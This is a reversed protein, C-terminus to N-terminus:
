RSQIGFAYGYTGLYLSIGGWPWKKKKALRHAARGLEMFRTLVILEAWQMAFQLEDSDIPEEAFVRQLDEFGLIPFVTGTETRSNANFNELWDLDFILTGYDRPYSFAEAYWEETHVAFENLELYLARVALRGKVQQYFGDIWAALEDANSVMSLGLVAHFPTAPIKKLAAEATDLARPFDYMLLDHSIRSAFKAYM